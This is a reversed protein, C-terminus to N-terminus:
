RSASRRPSSRSGSGPRSDKAAGSCSTALYPMVPQIVNVGLRLLMARHLHLLGTACRRRRRRQPFLFPPRTARAYRREGIAAIPAACLVLALALGGGGPHLAAEPGLGAARGARRSRGPRASCARSRFSALALWM